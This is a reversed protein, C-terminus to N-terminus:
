TLELGLEHEVATQFDQFSVPADEGNEAVEHGLAQVFDALISRVGPEDIMRAAGM